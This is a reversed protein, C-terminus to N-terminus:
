KKVHADIEYEKNKKKGIILIATKTGDVSFTFGKTNEFQQLNNAARIVNEVKTTAHHIDDMFISMEVQVRPGIFTYCKTGIKNIKDTNVACLKPGPVTGQRVINNAVVNRIEGVPTKITATGKKNMNYLEYAETPGIIESIDCICDKLNLKDFCKYADAFLIYTECGISKNYGIVADLTMTHDAIQREKTGGCQFKSIGKDLKDSNRTMKVKDYIKSVNNTIFLGRRNELDKKDGKNKYISNVMMEEWKEPQEQKQNIETFLVKISEQLDKGGKKLMKNSTGQSDVTAKNKTKGIHDEVEKSTIKRLQGQRTRNAKAIREIKMVRRDILQRSIPDSISEQTFLNSYFHRFEERIEERTTKINKDRGIVASPQEVNKKGEMRKKFEWFAGSRIGGGENIKRIEETIGQNVERWRETRIKEEVENCERRLGSKEPGDETEALQKLISRRKSMMKRIKPTRKDKKRKKTCFCNSIIQEMEKEWANYREQIGGEKVASRLRTGSTMRTFKELNKKSTNLTNVEEKAKKKDEILWNFTAIIACHDSYVMREGTITYPTIIKDEDIKMSILTDEDSVDTILYELITKTEGEIRTWKGECKPSKNLITLEQKLVMEKLIKGSKSVEERNGKITNGIKCNFDGTLLIKEEKKKAEQVHGRIHKYMSEFVEKGTRSEQPAYICGIRIKTVKNSVLVWLSEFEETQRDIEIMLHDLDKRIGILIGGKGKKNNKPVVTYGEIEVKEDTDLKTETICVIHPKTSLICDSLSHLKSSIGRSNNYYIKFKSLCNKVKKGRRVKKNIKSRKM